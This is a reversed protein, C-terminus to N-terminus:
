KDKIIEYSGDLEFFPLVEAETDDIWVICWTYNQMKVKGIGLLIDEIYVRIIDNEYIEIDNKDKKTTSVRM